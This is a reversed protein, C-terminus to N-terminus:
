VNTAPSSVSDDALQARALAKKAANKAALDKAKNAARKQLGQSIYTDIAQIAPTGARIDTTIQALTGSGIGYLKAYAFAAVFILLLIALGILAVKQYFSRLGLQRNVEAAQTIAEDALRKAEFAAERESIATALEAAKRINDANATAFLKEAQEARGEMMASRRKEAELLEILDAAPLKALVNAGERAIYDKAPSDPALSNAKIISTVGAAAEAGRQNTIADVNKTTAIANNTTEVGRAARQSEKDLRKSKLLLAGGGFFVGCIAVIAIIELVGFASRPNNKM